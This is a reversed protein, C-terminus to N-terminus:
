GRMLAELDAVSRPIMRTTVTCGRATILLNDEIRIGIGEKPLYVGPECTILMGPALPRDADAPDHVDLGLHHGLGHHRKLGADLIPQWAIENWEKLTIGPRAHVIGLAQARLVIEYLERFRGSGFRGHQPVTRTVDACYGGSRAGSDILVCRGRQVQGDNHKYHLTAASVGSGVIPAFAPPEYGDHLYHQMLAAAVASETKLGPLQPLVARLGAWTRAVARRHWRLEDADKIMRLPLVAPEVNVISVGRLRRRWVAFQGAQFGPEKTRTLMGLRRGSRRVVRGVAETLGALDQAAHVGFARATGPGPQLRKGDWVVREKKGPDLFLTSRGREDILLAADPEHCGCFWDFWPDQRHRGVHPQTGAALDAEPVGLILLPLRGEHATAAAQAAAARRARYTALPLARGRIITRTM